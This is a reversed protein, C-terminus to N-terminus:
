PIQLHFKQQASLQRYQWLFLQIGVIGLLHPSLCQLLCVYHNHWCDHQSYGTGLPVDHTYDNTGGWVSLVTCDRPISDLRESMSRYGHALTSGSVGLNDYSTFGLDEAVLTPWPESMQVNNSKPIYGSPGTM